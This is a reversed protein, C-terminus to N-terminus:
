DSGLTVRERSQLTFLTFLQVFNDHSQIPDAFITYVRPVTM